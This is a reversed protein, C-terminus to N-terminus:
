AAPLVGSQVRVYKVGSNPDEYLEREGRIKRLRSM